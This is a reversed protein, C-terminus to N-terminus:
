VPVVLQPGAVAAIEADVNQTDIEFPKGREELYGIETLFARYDEPDPAGGGHDRHWADIKAQLDNRVVLLDRNERTFRAVVDALGAWFRAAEIGLDPLLEAEVFTKLRADVDLGSTGNDQRVTM